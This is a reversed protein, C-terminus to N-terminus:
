EHETEGLAARDAWEQVRPEQAVEKWLPDFTAWWACKDHDTDMNGVMWVAAMLRENMVRLRNREDRLARFMAAFDERTNQYALSDEPLHLMQYAYMEVIKDSTDSM